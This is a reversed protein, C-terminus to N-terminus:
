QEQSRVAAFAFVGNKHARQLPWLEGLSCGIASAAYNETANLAGVNKILMVM